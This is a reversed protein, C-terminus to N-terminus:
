QRATSERSDQAEPVPFACRGTHGACSMCFTLPTFLLLGPMCTLRLQVASRSTQVLSSAHRLCHISGHSPAGADVFAQAQSHNVHDHGSRVQDVKAPLWNQSLEAVSAALVTYDCGQPKPPGQYLLICASGNLNRVRHYQM